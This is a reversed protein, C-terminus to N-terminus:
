SNQGFKEIENEMKSQNEYKKSMKELKANKV